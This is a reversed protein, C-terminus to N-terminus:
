IRIIREGAVSIRLFLDPLPHKEGPDCLISGGLFKYADRACEISSGWPTPEANFCVGICPPNEPIKQITIPIPIEHYVGEYIFIDEEILKLSFASFYSAVWILVDDLSSEEIYIEVEM